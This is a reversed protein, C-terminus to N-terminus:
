EIALIDRYAIIHCECEIRKQFPEIKKITDTCTKIFGDDFYTITLLEGHYNLLREEILAAQDSSILPRVVKKKDHMMRAMTGKQEILSAYPAWKKMGRDNM